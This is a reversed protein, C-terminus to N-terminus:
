LFIPNEKKDTYTGKSYTNACLAGQPNGNYVHM